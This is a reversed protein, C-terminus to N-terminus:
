TICKEAEAKEKLRRVDAAIGAYDPELYLTLTGEASLSAVVGSRGDAFVAETDDPEDGYTVLVNEGKDFDEALAKVFLEALAALVRRRGGEQDDPNRHYLEHTANGYIDAFQRLVDGLTEIAERGPDKGVAENEKSLSKGM